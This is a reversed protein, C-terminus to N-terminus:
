INFTCVNKYLGEMAELSDQAIVQKVVPLQHLLLEYGHIMQLDSTPLVVTFVHMGPVILTSSM